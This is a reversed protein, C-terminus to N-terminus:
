AGDRYLRLTWEKFWPPRVAIVYAALLGALPVVFLVADTVLIGAALLIRQSSSM